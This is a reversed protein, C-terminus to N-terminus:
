SPRLAWLACEPTAIVDSNKNIAQEVAERLRHALGQPSTPWQPASAPWWPALAERLRHEVSM